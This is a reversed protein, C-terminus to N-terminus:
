FGNVFLLVKVFYQIIKVQLFQFESEVSSHLGSRLWVHEWINLCHMCVRTKYRDYVDVYQSNYWVQINLCIGYLRIWLDIEHTKNIIWVYMCRACQIAMRCWWMTIAQQLGNQWLIGNQLLINLGWLIRWQTMLYLSRSIICYTSM